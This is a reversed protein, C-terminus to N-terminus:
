PRLDALNWPATSLVGVVLVGGVALSGVTILMVALHRAGRWRPVVLQPRRGRLACARGAATACLPDVKDQTALWVGLALGVVAGVVLECALPRM